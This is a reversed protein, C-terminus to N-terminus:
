GVARRGPRQQVAVVASLTVTLWAAGLVFGGIVDSLWHVGLYLRSFGILLALTVAGTWALITSRRTRTVHAVLWALAGYCAVAQASHGSPFAFGSATAVIEGLEPRPRAISLKVFTVLVAAGASSLPMVLRESWPRRHVALVVTVAVIVAIVFWAAGLETIARLAATSWPERREVIWRTVPTDVAAINDQNVVAETTEGFVWGLLGLGVLGVTLITGAPSHRFWRDVIDTATYRSRRTMEIQITGGAGPM